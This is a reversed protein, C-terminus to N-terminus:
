QPCFAANRVWGSWVSYYVYSWAGDRRIETVWGGAYAVRNYKIPGSPWVHISADQCLRYGTWGIRRNAPQIPAQAPAAQSVAPRDSALAASPATDFGALAILAISLVTIWRYM